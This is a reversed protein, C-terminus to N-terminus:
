YLKGLRERYSSGKYTPNGYKFPSHVVGYRGLVVLWPKERCLKAAQRKRRARVKARLPAEVDTPARSRLHGIPPAGRLAKVVRVISRLFNGISNGTTKTYKPKGQKM